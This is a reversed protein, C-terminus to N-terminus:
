IVALERWEVPARRRYEAAPNRAADQRLVDKVGKRFSFIGIEFVFNLRMYLNLWNEIKKIDYISVTVKRRINDDTSVTYTDPIINDAIDLINGLDDQITFRYQVNLKPQLLTQKDLETVPYIM